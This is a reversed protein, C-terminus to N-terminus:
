FGIKTDLINWNRVFKGGVAVLHTGVDTAQPIGYIEGGGSQNLHCWRPFREPEVRLSGAPPSLTFLKGIPIRIQESPTTPAAKAGGGNLSILLLLLCWAM